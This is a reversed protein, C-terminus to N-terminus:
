GLMLKFKEWKSDTKSMKIKKAAESNPAYRLIEEDTLIGPKPEIEARTKIFKTSVNVLRRIEEERLEEILGVHGTDETSYKSGCANCILLGNEDKFNHSGCNECQM